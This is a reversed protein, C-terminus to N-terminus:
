SQTKINSDGPSPWSVKATRLYKPLPAAGHADQRQIPFSLVAGSAARLISSFNSDYSAGNSVLAMTGAILALSSALIAAGYAIWLNTPSYSYVPKFINITVNVPPPSFPSTRNPQLLDSSMLSITLNTFMEEILRLLSPQSLTGGLNSLGGGQSMNNLMFQTQITQNKSNRVLYELEPTNILNTAFINTGVDPSFLDVVSGKIVQSFADLIGTYSLRQMLGTDIVCPSEKQIPPYEVLDCTGGNNDISRGIVQFVNGVAELRGIDFKINQVGSEYRIEVYYSANYLDCQLFSPNEVRKLSTALESPLLAIYLPTFPGRKDGTSFVKDIIPLPTTNRYSSEHSTMPLSNTHWCLYVDPQIIADGLWEAINQEVLAQVSDKMPGCSLSPGYFNVAWSSNEAPAGIPLIDGRTAVAIAVKEVEINPGSYEYVNYVFEDDSAPLSMPMGAVYNFSTFDVNPVHQTVLHSDSVLIVSLTGPPIIFALPLLWSALAVSLLVPHKQWASVKGFAFLSSLGSFMTDLDVLANLKVSHRAAKWFVQMYAISIAFILLARTVFAFSTGLVNSLQQSSYRFGLISQDIDAPSGDLNWYYFHHCSAVIVGGLWAGLMLAPAVGDIKSQIEMGNAYM